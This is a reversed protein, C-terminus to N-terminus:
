RSLKGMREALFHMNALDESKFVFGVLKFSCLQV